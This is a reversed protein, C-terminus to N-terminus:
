KLLTTHGMESLNTAFVDRNTNLFIQLKQKQQHNLQSQSLDFKITSKSKYSNQNENIKIDKTLDSIQNVWKIM